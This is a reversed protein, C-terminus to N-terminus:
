KINNKAKKSADINFAWDIQVNQTWLSKMSMEHPLHHIQYEREGVSYTEKNTNNCIKATSHNVMSYMTPTAHIQELADRQTNLIQWYTPHVM